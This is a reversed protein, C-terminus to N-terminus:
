YNKRRDELCKIKLNFYINANGCAILVASQKDLSFLAKRWIFVRTVYGNLWHRDWVNDFALIFRRPNNNM